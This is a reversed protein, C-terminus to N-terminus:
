YAAGRNPPAPMMQSATISAVQGCAQLFAYSFFRTSRLARGFLQTM